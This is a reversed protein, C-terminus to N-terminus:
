LCYACRDSVNLAVFILPNEKMLLREIRIESEAKSVERIKKEKSETDFLLLMTDEFSKEKWSKIPNVTQENCDKNILCFMDSVYDNDYYYEITDDLSECIQIKASLETFVRNMEQLGHFRNNRSEIYEWASLLTRGPCGCSEAVLLKGGVPYTQELLEGMVHRKIVDIAKAALGSYDNRCSTIQPRSFMIEDVGDYGTM